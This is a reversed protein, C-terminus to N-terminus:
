GQRHLVRDNCECNGSAFASWDPVGRRFVGGSELMAVVREKGEESVVTIQVKGQQIYFVADAADGQRFIPRDRQYMAHSRGAGVAAIFSQPDLKQIKQRAM